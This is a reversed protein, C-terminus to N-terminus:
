LLCSDVPAFRQILHYAARDGIGTGQRATLDMVLDATEVSCGHSYVLLGGDTKDPNVIYDIAKRRTSKIVKLKSTAM